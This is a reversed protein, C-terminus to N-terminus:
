RNFKILDLKLDPETIKFDTRNSLEYFLINPEESYPCIQRLGEALLERANNMFYNTENEDWAKINEVISNLQTNLGSEVSLIQDAETHGSLLKLYIGGPVFDLDNRVLNQGVSLVLTARLSPLDKDWSILMIQTIGPVSKNSSLISEQLLAIKAPEDKFFEFADNTRLYGNEDVFRTLVNKLENIENSFGSEANNFAFDLDNLISEHSIERGSELLRSLYNNVDTVRYPSGIGAIVIADALKFVKKAAPMKVTFPGTNIEYQSDVAILAFYQNIIFALSEM